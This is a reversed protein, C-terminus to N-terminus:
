GEGVEATAAKVTNWMRANENALSGFAGMAAIVILSAILAYEVATAGSNDNWIRRIFTPLKM